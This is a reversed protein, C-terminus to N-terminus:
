SDAPQQAELVVGDMVLRDLATRDLGLIEGLVQRTHQGLLPAPREHRGPTGSLKVPTGTVQHPALPPHDLVPFMDRFVTQPHAVVEPFTRVLSCPIGSAQLKEVWESASNREFVGDLIPELSARNRVRLPNTAFDPHSKLDPREIVQCLAAWLKESGVALGFTRDRARYVRYPVITPFATGLPRPANGSGLYTMFNSTMTSIMSDLM